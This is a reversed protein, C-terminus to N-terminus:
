TGSRALMSRLRNCLGSFTRSGSGAGRMNSCQPFRYKNFFMGNRGTGGRDTGIGNGIGTGDAAGVPDTTGGGGGVGGGSLVMIGGGAGGTTGAVTEWALGGDEGGVKGGAVGGM